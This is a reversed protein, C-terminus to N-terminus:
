FLPQLTHLKEMNPRYAKTLVNWTNHNKQCRFLGQPIIMISRFPAIALLLYIM